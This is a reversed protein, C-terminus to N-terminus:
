LFQPKGPIMTLEPVCYKSSKSGVQKLSHNLKLLSNITQRRDYLVM